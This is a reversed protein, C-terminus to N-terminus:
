NANGKRLSKVLLYSRQWVVAAFIFVSIVRVIDVFMSEFWLRLLNSAVTASFSWAFYLMHRGLASGKWNAKTQFLIAFVMMGLLAAVLGLSVLTNVM